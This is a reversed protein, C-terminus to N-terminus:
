KEPYCLWDDTHESHVSYGHRALSARLQDRDNGVWEIFLVPRCRKLTEEAGDLLAFEMQQVDIKFLDVRPFAYSDLRRLDVYEVREPDRTRAQNLQENQVPGFEISGFNMDSDYRFQPVEVYGDERGLCVNHVRVNVQQTLAASGALMNCIVPQPEFAHAWGEPGVRKALPIFFAGLNGGADLYVKGPPCGDLIGALLMMREHHVGRKTAVFARTQNMDHAALIMPGYETETLTAIQTM